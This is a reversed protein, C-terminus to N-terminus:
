EDAELLGRLRDRCRRFVGEDGWVSALGDLQSLTTTVENRWHELKEEAGIREEAISRAADRAEELKRYLENKAHRVHDCTPHTSCYGYGTPVCPQEIANEAAPNEMVDGHWGYDNDIWEFREVDGIIQGMTEWPDDDFSGFYASIFLMIRWQAAFSYCVGYKWEGNKLFRFRQPLKDNMRSEKTQDDDSTCGTGIECHLMMEMARLMMQPRLGERCGSHVLMNLSSELVNTFAKPGYRPIAERLAEKIYPELPKLRERTWSETM